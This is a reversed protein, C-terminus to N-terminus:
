NISSPAPPACSITLTQLRLRHAVSACFLCPRPLLFCLGCVLTFAFFVSELLTLPVPLDSASYGQANRRQSVRPESGAYATALQDAVASPSKQYRAEAVGGGSWWLLVLWLLGLVGLGSVLLRVRTPLCDSHTPM